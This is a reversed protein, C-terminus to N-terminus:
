LMINSLLDRQAVSKMVCFFKNNLNQKKLLYMSLPSYDVKRKGNQM